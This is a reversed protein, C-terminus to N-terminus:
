HNQESSKQIYFELMKISKEHIPEDPKLKVSIYPVRGVGSVAITERELKSIEVLLPLSVTEPYFRIESKLHEVKKMKARSAFSKILAISLLVSTEKPIKGFRDNLENVIDNYDDENEIHAIKKYIEM